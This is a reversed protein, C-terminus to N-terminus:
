TEWGEESLRAIAGEHGSEAAKSLWKRARNRAIRCSSGQRLEDCFKLAREWNDLYQCALEYQKQPDGQEALNLLGDFLTNLANGSKERIMDANEKSIGSSVLQPFLKLGSQACKSCEYACWWDELSGTKKAIMWSCYAKWYYVAYYLKSDKNHKDILELWERSSAWEGQGFYYEAMECMAPVDNSEARELVAKMGPPVSWTEEPQAPSVPSTISSPREASPVIRTEEPFHRMIEAYYNEPPEGGARSPIRTRENNTNFFEEYISQIVDAQDGYEEESILGKEQEEVAKELARNQCEQMDGVPEVEVAIFGVQNNMGHRALTKKSRTERLEDLCAQSRLSSTSLYFVMLKCHRGRIASLADNKWSEKTCDLNKKDLWVNYGNEQFNLVDQWVVESDKSSYSIFVYPRDTMCSSIRSLLSDRNDM